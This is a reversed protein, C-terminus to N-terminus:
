KLLQDLQERLRLSMMEHLRQMHANILYCNRFIAGCGIFRLIIVSDSLKHSRVAGQSHSVINLSVRFDTVIYRVIVPMTFVRKKTEVVADCIQQMDKDDEREIKMARSEGSAALLEPLNKLRTGDTMVHTLFQVTEVMVGNAAVNFDIPCFKVVFRGNGNGGSKEGNM